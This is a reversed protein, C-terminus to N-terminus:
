SNPGQRLCPRSIRGAEPPSRRPLPPTSCGPSRGLNGAGGGKAEGGGEGLEQRGQRQEQKRRQVRERRMREEESSRREEESSGERQGQGWGKEQAPERRGARGEATAPIEAEEAGRREVQGEARQGPPPAPHTHGPVQRLPRPHV